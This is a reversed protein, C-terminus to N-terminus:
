VLPAVLWRPVMWPFKGVAFCETSLTTYTSTRPQKCGSKQHPQRCMVFEAIHFCFRPKYKEHEGFAKFVVVLIFLYEDICLILVFCGVYGKLPLGVFVNQTIWIPCETRLSDAKMYSALILFPFDLATNVMVSIVYLVNNARLLPIPKHERFFSM